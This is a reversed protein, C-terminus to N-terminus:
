ITNTPQVVFTSRRVCLDDISYSRFRKHLRAKDINERKGKLIDTEQVFFGANELLERIDSARLLNLSPHKGGYLVSFPDYRKSKKNHASFDVIYIGVGRDSMLHRQRVLESELDQIHELVSISVVLDLSEETVYNINNIFSVGGLDIPYDPKEDLFASINRLDLTILRRKMEDNDIGSFNFVDPNFLITKVIEQAAYYASRSDINGPELALVNDAGNVYLILSLGIPNYQGSGFDLVTKGRLNQYDWIRHTLVSDSATILLNLQDKYKSASFASFRHESVYADIVMKADLISRSMGREGYAPRDLARTLKEASDQGIVGLKVLTEITKEREKPVLLQALHKCLNQSEM